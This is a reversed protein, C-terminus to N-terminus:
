KMWRWMKDMRISQLLSQYRCIAGRQSYSKLLTGALLVVVMSRTYQGALGTYLLPLPPHPHPSPARTAARGDGGGGRKERKAIYQGKRTGQPPVSERRDKM